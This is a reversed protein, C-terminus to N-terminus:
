FYFIKLIILFFGYINLADKSLKAMESSVNLMETEKCEVDFFEKFTKDYIIKPLKITTTLFKHLSKCNTFNINDKLQKM